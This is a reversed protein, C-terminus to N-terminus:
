DHLMAVTLQRKIGEQRCYEDFARSTYEGGNDSRLVKIKKRTQNEVLAKFEQFRLLVEELDRAELSISGLRGPFTMSLHSM